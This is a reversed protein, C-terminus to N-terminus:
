AEESLAAEQNPGHWAQPGLWEGTERWWAERFLHAVTMGFLALLGDEFVWRCESPDDPDWMCLLREGYRHPSETPGDSWVRPHRPSDRPFLVTVRRSEYFPVDLLAEYLRGARTGFPQTRM